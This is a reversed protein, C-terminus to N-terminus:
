WFRGSGDEDPGPRGGDVCLMSVSCQCVRGDVSLIRYHRGIFSITVSVAVSILLRTRAPSNDAASTTSAWKSRM